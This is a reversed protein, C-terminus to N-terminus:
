QMKNLSNKSFDQLEKIFFNFSSSKNRQIDLHPAIKEAAAPKRYHGIIYQLEQSPNSLFDPDRYKKQKERKIIDPKNYALGIAMLDGLFWSELEHVAICVLSDNQQYQQCLM